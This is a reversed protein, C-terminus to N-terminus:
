GNLQVIRSGLERGKVWQFKINADLSKLTKAASDLKAQRAVELRKLKELQQPTITQPSFRESGPVQPIRITDTMAVMPVAVLTSIVAVKMNTNM